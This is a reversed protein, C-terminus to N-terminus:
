LQSQRTGTLNKEVITELTLRPLHKDAFQKQSVKLKYSMGSEFRFGEIPEAQLHWDGNPLERIRLCKGQPATTCKHLKPSVELLLTQSGIQNAKPQATFHLIDHTSSKIVLSSDNLQLVTADRLANVLGLDRETAVTDCSIKSRELQAFRIKKQNFSSKGQFIQCGPAISIHQKDFEVQATQKDFSQTTDGEWSTLTWRYTSLTNPWPTTNTCGALSCGGVVILAMHKIFNM